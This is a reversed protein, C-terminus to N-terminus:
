TIYLVIGYDILNSEGSRITCMKFIDIHQKFLITCRELRSVSFFDEEEEYM